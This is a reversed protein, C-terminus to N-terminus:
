YSIEATVSFTSCEGTKKDHDLKLEFNRNVLTLEQSFTDTIKERVDRKWGASLRIKDFDLKLTSDTGKRTEGGNEMYLKCSFALYLLGNDYSLGSAAVSKENEEGTNEFVDEREWSLKLRFNRVDIVTKLMWERVFDNYLEDKFDPPRFDTCMKGSLSMFPFPYVLTSIGYRYRSVPLKGLPAIYNETCGSFSIDIEARNGLFIAAFERNYLGSNMYSGSSLATVSSFMFFDHAIDLKLASNSLTCKENHVTNKLYYSSGANQVPDSNEYLAELRFWNNGACAHLGRIEPEPSTGLTFFTLSGFPKAYMGYKGSETMGKDFVLKGEETFVDTDPGYGCPNLIETFLGRTKLKGLGLVPSVFSLSSYEEGKKESRVVSLKIDEDEIYLRRRSIGETSGFSRIEAKEPMSHIPISVLLLLLTFIYRLM